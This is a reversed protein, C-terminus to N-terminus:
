PIHSSSSIGLSQFVPSITKGFFPSMLIHLLQLPIVRSDIVLLNKLLIIRSLIESLRDTLFLSAKPFAYRAPVMNKCQPVGHFLALFPVHLNLYVKNIEFLSEIANVSVTEPANEPMVSDGLITLM